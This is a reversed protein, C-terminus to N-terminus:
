LVTIIAFEVRSARAQPTMAQMCGTGDTGLRLLPKVVLMHEVNQICRADVPAKWVPKVGLKHSTRTCAPASVTLTWKAM